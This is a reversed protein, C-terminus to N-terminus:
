CAGCVLEGVVHGVWGDLHLQKMRALLVARKDQREEETLGQFLLLLLHTLQHSTYM